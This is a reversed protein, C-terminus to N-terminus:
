CFYMTFIDDMGNPSAGLVAERCPGKEKQCLPHPGFSSV